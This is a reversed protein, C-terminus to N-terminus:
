CPLRQPAAVFGGQGNHPHRPRLCLRRFKKGIGEESNVLFGEGKWMPEYKPFTGATFGETAKPALERQCPLRQHLASVPRTLSTVVRLFGGHAIVAAARRGKPLPAKPATGIGPPDPFYRYSSLRRACHCRRCAAGKVLSGKTRGETVAGAPRFGSFAAREDFLPFVPFVYLIGRNEMRKDSM